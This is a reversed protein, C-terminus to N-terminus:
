KRRYTAYKYKIGEPTEHTESQDTLEWEAASIEPFWTDASEDSALVHTIELRDAFPMAARYVSEGGIIYAESGKASAIAEELGSAKVAGDPSFDPNRSVVINLRGPLPKRPLSEWTKRGMIVAGGMTLKKFRRLDEPLHWILDGNKGLEMKEGVAAIIALPVDRRTDSHYISYPKLKVTEGNRASVTENVFLITQEM